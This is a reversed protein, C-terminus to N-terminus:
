DDDDRAVEDEPSEGDSELPSASSGAEIQMIAAQVSKLIKVPIKGKATPAFSFQIANVMFDGTWEVSVQGRCKLVIPKLAMKTWAEPWEPFPGDVNNYILAPKCTPVLFVGKAEANLCMVGNKREPTSRISVIDWGRQGPTDNKDLRIIAFHGPYVDVSPDYSMRAPAATGQESSLHLITDDRGQKFAGDKEIEGLEEFLRILDGTPCDRQLHQMDMTDLIHLLSTAAVSSERREDSPREFPLSVWKENKEAEPFPAQLTKSDHQSWFADEDDFFTKWWQPAATWRDRLQGEISRGVLSNLRPKQAVPPDDVALDPETLLPADDNSQIVRLVEEWHKRVDEFHDIRVKPSALFPRQVLSSSKERLIMVPTGADKDWQGRWDLGSEDHEKFFVGAKGGECMAVKFAHIRRNKGNVQCTGHGKLKYVTKTSDFFSAYDGVAEVIHQTTYEGADAFLSSVEDMLHPLTFIDKNQLHQSIVSYKQDLNSHTHGPPLFHVYVEKFWGLEVLMCLYAFIVQLSSPATPRRGIM